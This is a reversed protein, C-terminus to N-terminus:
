RVMPSPAAFTPLSSAFVRSSMESATATVARQSPQMVVWTSAAARWPAVRSSTISASATAMWTLAPAASTYEARVSSANLAFTGQTEGLALRSRLQERQIRLRDVLAKEQVDVQFRRIASCRRGTGESQEHSHDLCIRLGLWGPPYGMAFALRRGTMPTRNIPTRQGGAGTDACCRGAM